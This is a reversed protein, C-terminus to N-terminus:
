WRKSSTLGLQKWFRHVNCAWWGPTSQDNKNDCDHRKLFALRSEDNNNKINLNPDGWSIKKAIINGEKDKKGSNHYVYFKKEGGRKPSDLVVSEGKWKARIGTQLKEVIFQDDESLQIDGGYWLQRVENVLDYYADSDVRFISESLTLGENIHYKLKETILHENFSKILKM